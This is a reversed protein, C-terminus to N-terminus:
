LRNDGSIYEDGVYMRGARRAVVQGGSDLMTYLCDGDTEGALAGLPILFLCVALLLAATLRTKRM